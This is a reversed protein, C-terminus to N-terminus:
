SNNERLVKYANSWYEQCKINSTFFGTDNLIKHGKQHCTKNEKGRMRSVNLILDKDNTSNKKKLSTGQLQNKGKLNNPM